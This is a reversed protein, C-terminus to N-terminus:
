CGEENAGDNEEKHTAIIEKTVRAGFYEEREAEHIHEREEELVKVSGCLVLEFRDM